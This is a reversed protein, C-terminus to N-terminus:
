SFTRNRIINAAALAESWLYNPVRRGRMMSRMKDLLIRNMREAVGNRQPTGKPAMEREIGKQKLYETFEESLYEGGRDSRIKKVRKNFQTKLMKRFVIFEELVDSKRRIPITWAMRSHDDIFTVFYNCGNYSMPKIPGCVDSHILEGVEKSRIKTEKMFKKRPMKGEDCIRCQYKREEKRENKPILGDRKMNELYKKSIHGLREHWLREENMEELRGEEIVEVNMKYLGTEDINGKM